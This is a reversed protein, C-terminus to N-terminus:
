NRNAVVSAMKLANYANVIRGSVSLDSFPVMTGNPNEISLSGPKVVQLDIKTGSNMIIKKVQSATLEPYYSRILTAIGAVAPAAMSTGSRYDYKNEPLSSYIQDGPAYIDVNLKGYNTFEYMLDKGFNPSISGISLYTDAIENTKDPADTPFSYKVDIDKADNGSAHVLLVDKEAAYKIADYVWQSKPSYSKGFSMNIVKAGNDVAYRIGLAVDKDYEDGYPVVRVAMLKVNTAVGNIGLGNNRSAALIGAVHTGHSQNNRKPSPDNDGYVKSDMSYANDRLESRYDKRLVSGSLLNNANTVLTELEKIAESLNNYGINFMEQAIATSRELYTDSADINKLDEKTIDKKNLKRTLNSNAYTVGQLIQGYLQKNRKAQQVNFDYDKKARRYTNADAITSDKVIRYIEANEKNVNGLFNWGNVDDIFGNNDDDKGNNPIEDSNIWFNDKLDQHNLDIAADLVAVIVEQGNKGKLFEYALNLSMGPISDKMLDLEKWNRKQEESLPSKKGVASIAENSGAPVPIIKPVSNCNSLMAILCLVVLFRRTVKMRIM